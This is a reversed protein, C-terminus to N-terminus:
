QGARSARAQRITLFAMAAALYDAERASKPKAALAKEARCARGRACGPAAAGVIPDVPEHCLGLAGDRM